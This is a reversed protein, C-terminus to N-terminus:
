LIAPKACKLSLSPRLAEPRGEAALLFLYRPQLNAPIRAVCPRMMQHLCQITRLSETYERGQNKSIFALVHNEAEWHKRKFLLAFIL